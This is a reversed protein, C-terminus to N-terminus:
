TLDAYVERGVANRYEADSMDAASKVPAAKHGPPNAGLKIRQRRELAIEEATKPRAKAKEFADLVIKADSAYDSKMLATMDAPQKVKWEMYEPSAITKQWGPKLGSLVGLQVQRDVKALIDGEAVPAASSSAIETRLDALAARLKNDYRADFADAWEPFDEKLAEWKEDSEAAQRMQEQNPVAAAKKAVHLENTIAGIRSEAQKLRTETAELKTVKQSMEEYMTKLAPPAGAWPDDQTEKPKADVAPPIYDGSEEAEMELAVDARMQQIEEATMETAEEM